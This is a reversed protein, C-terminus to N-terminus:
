LADSYKSIFACIRIQSREVGVEGFGVSESGRERVALLDCREQRVVLISRSAIEPFFHVRDASDPIEVLKFSRFL